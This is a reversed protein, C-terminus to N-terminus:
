AAEKREHEGRWQATAERGLRVCTVIGARDASPPRQLWALAAYLDALQAPDPLGPIRRDRLGDARTAADRLDRAIEWEPAGFHGLIDDDFSPCPPAAPDVIWRWQAVLCRALGLRKAAETPTVKGAEVLAPYRREREALLHEAAALLLEHHQHEAYRLLTM